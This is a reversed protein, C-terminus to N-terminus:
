QCIYSSVLRSETMALVWANLKRDGLFYEKLFSGRDLLHHSLFGLLFVALMYVGFAVLVYPSPIPM